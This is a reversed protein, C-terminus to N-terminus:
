ETSIIIFTCFYIKFQLLYPVHNQFKQLNQCDVLLLGIENWHNNGTTLSILSLLCKYIRM